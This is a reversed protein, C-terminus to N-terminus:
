RGELEDELRDISEVDSVDRGRLQEELLRNRSKLESVETESPQNEFDELRSMAAALEDQLEILDQEAQQDSSALQAILKENDELLSEIQAKLNSDESETAQSEFGKLRKMADALEGQLEILNQEAKQDSSALQAILKENEELLSEVQAKPNTDEIRDLKLMANALEKELLEITKAKGTTNQSLQEELEQNRTRAEALEEELEVLSSIGSDESQGLREELKAIEAQSNKLQERLNAMERTRGVASDQAGDRLLAIEAELDNIQQHLKIKEDEGKQLENLQTSMAEALESRLNDVEVNAQESEELSEQLIRITGLAEQLQSVAQRTEVSEGLGATKMRSIEERAADLEGKLDLILDKSEATNAILSEQEQMLQKRNDELQMELAM